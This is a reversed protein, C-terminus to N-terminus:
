LKQALVGITSPITYGGLQFKGILGKLVAFTNYPKNKTTLYSKWDVGAGIYLIKFNHNKLLM